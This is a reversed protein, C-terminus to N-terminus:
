PVALCFSCSSWPYTFNVVYDVMEDWVYCGYWPDISTNARGDLDRKYADIRGRLREPHTAELGTARKETHRARVEQFFGRKSSKFGRVTHNNKSKNGSTKAVQDADEDGGQNPSTLNLNQGMVLNIPPFNGGTQPYTLNLDLGCLHSRFQM